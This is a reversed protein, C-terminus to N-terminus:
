IALRRVDATSSPTALSYLRVGVQGMDKWVFELADLLEKRDPLMKNKNYCSRQNRVWQALIKDQRNKSPVKCNGNIGKYEVLKEYHQHWLKDGSKFTLAGDYKWVFELADLLEKRDPLMKNKNYCYRQNREWQALSKDQPYKSLVKCNSGNIRKFEVLKEYHQHWLKDDPEFTLAGDDKWAFGIENLIIERDQRM